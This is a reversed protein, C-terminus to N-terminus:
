VLFEQFVWNGYKMGLPTLHLYGNEEALLGKEKMRAIADRYISEIACGFKRQFAAKPIGRATRLALFCFEGMQVERTAPEELHSPSKGAEIAEMYIDLEATNARREGQWYSHAAAGFGLYPVDQWYGLNHRSEYGPKAFNSIEYRLYGLRPLEEMIYDYMAEVADEDPLELRGQERQRAFVTEEEVQLGYVSIHPVDLAAAEAVSERLDQMTQGPLGYILDLSLNRFGADRALRLAERAQEAAHIRGIRRLLTDSFSQVGFSLRNVGCSFLGELYARDVTGPNVEVTWEADGRIPMKEKLTHLIGMLLPQPLATPTGGGVYVTSAKGRGCPLLTRGGGGDAITGRGWPPPCTIGQAAIEIERCLAHAYREMADERGAYSPFDCYFCKRRCFPIHVYIGWGM